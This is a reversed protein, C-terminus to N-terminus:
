QAPVEFRKFTMKFPMTIDSCETSGGLVLDYFQPGSTVIRTDLNSPDAPDPDIPIDEEQSVLQWGNPEGANARDTRFNIHVTTKGAVSQGAKRGKTSQLDEYPFAVIQPSSTLNHDSDTVIAGAAVTLSCTTAGEVYKTRARDVNNYMIAPVLDGNEDPEVQVLYRFRDCACDGAPDDRDFVLTFVRADNTFAPNIVSCAQADLLARARGAQPGSGEINFLSCPDPHAGSDEDFLIRYDQYIVLGEPHTSPYLEMIGDEDSDVFYRQKGDSFLRTGPHGDHLTLQAVPVTEVKNKGGKKGQGQFATSSSPPLAFALVALVVAVVLLRTRM